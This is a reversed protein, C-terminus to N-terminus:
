PYPPISQRAAVLGDVSYPPIGTPSKPQGIMGQGRGIRFGSSCSTHFPTDTGTFLVPPLRSVCLVCPVCPRVRACPDCPRVECGDLGLSVGARGRSPRFRSWSLLRLFRGCAWLRGCRYFSVPSRYAMPLFVGPAPLPPLRVNFSVPPAPVCVLSVRIAHNPLHPILNNCSIQRECM